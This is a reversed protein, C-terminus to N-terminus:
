YYGKIKFKNALIKKLQTEMMTAPKFTLIVERQMKELKDIVSNFTENGFDLKGSDMKIPPLIINTPLVFEIPRNEKKAKVYANMTEQLWEPDKELIERYEEDLNKWIQQYITDDRSPEEDEDEEESEEEIVLQSKPKEKESEINRKSKKDVVGMQFSIIEPKAHYFTIDKLTNKEQILHYTNTDENYEVLNKSYKKERIENLLPTLQNIYISVVDQILQINNNTEDFKQILIKMDNIMIYSKEIQEKLEENRERNDVIDIYEELYYTLLDSNDQIREKIEDFLEVAEESNIYGFILKNKNNIINKKEDNIEKEFNHIVDPYIECQPLKLEINLNCPESLSGCVARFFTCLNENDYTQTFRTGVPRKCNICKPKLKKFEQRKEKWSRTKDKIIKMKDKNYKNEYNTKLIYYQNLAEVFEKNEETDM